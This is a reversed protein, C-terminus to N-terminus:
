QKKNTSIESRQDTPKMFPFLLIERLTNSNTLLRVLRDIGIGCGATPPMGYEIAKLFDEDMAQAEDDGKERLKKQEIFRERQDTPDNLESFAKTLELGNIVLQFTDVIANNDANKKALPILETPHNTVFTPEVIEAIGAKFAEDTNKGNTVEAFTKRDFKKSFDIKKGNIEFNLNGQNIKSVVDKILEEVLDMMKKYDAYAWYFELNTFEPNHSADVGENRFCRAFEFVKEFGGVLLRKLYLEPAIRLYVDRDYVNYHTIFPKASAGGAIPQLVPTDVEVFNKSILFDRIIQIIQSRIYFKKKVESNILLDLYRERYRLEPDKFGFHKEPIPRLSKTLLKLAHVEVSIEGANTKFISGKVEIFDGLDLLPIIKFENDELIDAKFIIQIKASEDVLDAFVLRGHGRIATIRGATVLEKKSKILELSNDLIKKNSIEKKSESPYPNIGLKKLEELKNRRAEILDKETAGINNM